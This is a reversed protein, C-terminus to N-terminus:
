YLDYITTWMENLFHIKTWVKQRADYIRMSRDGLTERWIPEGNNLVKRLQNVRKEIDDLIEEKM